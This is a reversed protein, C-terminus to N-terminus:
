RVDECWPWGTNPLGRESVERWNLIRVVGALRLDELAFHLPGGVDGGTIALAASVTPLGFCTNAPQEREININKIPLEDAFLYAGHAPHRPPTPHTTTASM